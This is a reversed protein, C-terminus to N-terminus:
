SINKINAFSSLLAELQIFEDSGEVLRFEIEGCKEILSLKHKNDIELNLTEQQIQKIIDLGSLGHNLMTKLLSDRAKIFNGNIAITLMEKVEKPNAYSVIEYISEKTINKNISSSSQLINYVKRVDGQSIEYLNNVTEESIKLKEKQSINKIILSISEKSLSKFKFVACRSIIPDILKSIHNCSFIFRTTDSYAEMTRRLANQADKTLADAEDLFVIKTTQSLSKTKSFDKVQGRITDIGRNDSANLSLINERWREKFLTKAIVEATTTKGTGAPGSFILHPLNKQEVMAKIRKIIHEQGILEEFNQPRYKEIFLQNEPM